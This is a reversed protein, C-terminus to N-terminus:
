ALRGALRRLAARGEAAFGYYENECGWVIAGLAYLVHSFTRQEEQRPALARGYGAFFAAVLDPREIWEWSPYRTFDATRVDPYAFEFDIVGAWTGDAAVLWNAPCYDRHCATPREGAFAPILDRAARVVAREDDGLYRGRLGRELWGDLESTVYELANYIPRGAPLGDRRCPGFSEGAPLAHLRALAQGASRWAAQDAAAPLRMGELVNGPLEGIVLALPEIARVALLRPAHEEFAPAWREYAHVESAWHGPDRHVKLYCLGDARRLRFAGARKGPHERTDDDLLEVPGLVSACWNLAESLEDRGHEAM